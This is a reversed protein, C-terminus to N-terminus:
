VVSRSVIRWLAEADPLFDLASDYIPFRLCGRPTSQIHISAEKDQVRARMTHM